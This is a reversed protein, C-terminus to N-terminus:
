EVSRKLVLSVLMVQCLSAIIFRNQNRIGFGLDLIAHCGFGVLVGIFLALFVKM